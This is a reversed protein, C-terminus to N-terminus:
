DSPCQAEGTRLMAQVQGKGTDLLKAITGFSVGSDHLRLVLQHRQRRLASAYMDAEKVCFMGYESISGSSNNRRPLSRKPQVSNGHTRWVLIAGNASLNDPIAWLGEVAWDLSWMIAAGPKVADLLAKLTDVQEDPLVDKSAQFLDDALMDVEDDV